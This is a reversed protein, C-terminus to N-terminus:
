HIFVIKHVFVGRDVCKRVFEKAQDVAQAIVKSGYKEHYHQRRRLPGVQIPGRRRTWIVREWPKHICVSDLRWIVEAQETTQSRHCSSHGQAGSEGEGACDNMIHAAPWEEERAERM